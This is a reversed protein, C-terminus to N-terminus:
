SPSSPDSKQLQAKQTILKKPRHQWAATCDSFPQTWTSAQISSVNYCFDLCHLDQIISAQPTSLWM